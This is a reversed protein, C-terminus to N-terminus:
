FLAPSEREAGAACAHFGCDEGPAVHHNKARKRVTQLFILYDEIFPLVACEDEVAQDPRLTGAIGHPTVILKNGLRADAPILHDADYRLNGTVAALDIWIVQKVARSRRGPYPCGEGAPDPPM